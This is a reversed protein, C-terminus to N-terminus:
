AAIRDYSVCFDLFDKKDFSADMRMSLIPLTKVKMYKNLKADVKQEVFAKGSLLSFYAVMSKGEYRVLSNEESIKIPNVEIPATFYVKVKSSKSRKNHYVYGDNNTTITKM